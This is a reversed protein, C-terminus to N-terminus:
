WGVGMVLVAAAMAVTAIWGTWRQVRTAIFDGM